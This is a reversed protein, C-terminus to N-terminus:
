RWEFVSESQITDVTMSHKNKKNNNDFNACKNRSELMTSFLMKSMLYFAYVDKIKTFNKLSFFINTYNRCITNHFFLRTLFPKRLEMRSIQQQVISRPRTSWQFNSLLCILINLIIMHHSLNWIGLIWIINLIMQM